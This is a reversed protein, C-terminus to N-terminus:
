PKTSLRPGPLNRVEARGKEGKPAMIGLLAPLVLLYGALLFAPALIAFMNEGAPDTRQLFIYGCVILLLALALFIGTKKGLGGEEM